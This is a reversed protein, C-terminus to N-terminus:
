NIIKVFLEILNDLYKKYYIDNVMTPLNKYGIYAGCVMGVMSCNIHTNHGERVVKMLTSMFMDPTNKPTNYINKLATLTFSFSKLIDNNHTHLDNYDYNIYRKLIDTYENNTELLEFVNNILTDFDKNDTSYVISNVLYSVFLMVSRYEPTYMIDYVSSIHLIIDNKNNVGAVLSHAINDTYIHDIEQTSMHSSFIRWFSYEEELQKINFLGYQDIAKIAILLKNTVNSWEGPHYRTRKSDTIINNFTFNKDLGFGFAYYTNEIDKKSMNYTANGLIDGLIFGYISGTIFDHTNRSM